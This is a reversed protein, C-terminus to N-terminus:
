GTKCSPETELTGPIDEKDHKRNSETELTEPIDEKDNKRNTM